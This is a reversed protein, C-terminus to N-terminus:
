IISPFFNIVLCNNRELFCEWFLHELTEIAVNCFTCINHRIAGIEYLFDNTAIRWHLFKFQSGRLKIDKTRTFPIM